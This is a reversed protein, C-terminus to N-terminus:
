KRRTVLRANLRVWAAIMKVFLRSLQWMGIGALVGLGALAIGAFVLLGPNLGGTTIYAPAVLAGLPALCVGVGSVALSLVVAWLSIMVAVLGLFPGLVFIANFFTLGLSAFVARVVSAVTVTGGEAPAELLSDITYSTGLTRPNGLAQSIQEETRGEAAGNRFHEEYDYLIEEKEKESMRRLSRRLEAMFREKNM